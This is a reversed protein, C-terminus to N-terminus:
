TGDRGGLSSDEAHSGLARRRAPKNRDALFDSRSAKCEVVISVGDSTWGIADPIEGVSGYGPELLVVNCRMTGRLWRGAREVLQEHSPGAIRDRGDMLSLGGPESM